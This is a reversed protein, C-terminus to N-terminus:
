NTGLSGRIYESNLPARPSLWPLDPLYNILEPLDREDAGYGHQFVVVPQGETITGGSVFKM